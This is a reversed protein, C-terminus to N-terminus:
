LPQIDTAATSELLVALVVHRGEGALVNYTRCAAQTDMTEIGIQLRILDQILAAAPFRLREGSGFIVLGSGLAALQAFHETRLEEFRQCPWTFRQGRSDLVLSSCIRSDGIAIWGRGYAHIFPADIRDAELKM